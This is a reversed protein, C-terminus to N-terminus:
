TLWQGTKYLGTITISSSNNPQRHSPSITAQRLQTVLHLISHKTHTSHESQPDFPRPLTFPPSFSSTSLAPLFPPLSQHGVKASPLRSPQHLSFSTSNQSYLWLSIWARVAASYPNCNFLRSPCVSSHFMCTHVPERDMSLSHYYLPIGRVAASYPNCNFLWSPYISSHSMCTHVPERDMSLSYYRLPIGRIAAPYSSCNCFQSPSISAHFM